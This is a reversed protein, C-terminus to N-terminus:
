GRPGDQRLLGIPQDDVEEYAAAFAEPKCPFFQGAGTHVIWDGPLVDLSGHATPISLTPRDSGIARYCTVPLGMWREILDSDFQGTFRRAEVVVTRRRFMM